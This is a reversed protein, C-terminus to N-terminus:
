RPSRALALVYSTLDDVAQEGLRRWPPMDSGAIGDRIASRVRARDPAFVPSRFNAPPRSLSGRRVGAGDGREGHCLACYELFLVGGRAISEQIDATEEVEGPGVPECAWLALCALTTGSVIGRRM